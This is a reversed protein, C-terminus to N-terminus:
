PLAPRSSVQVSRAASEGASLAAMMTTIWLREVARAEEAMHQRARSSHRHVHGLLAVVKLLAVAVDPLGRGMERKRHAGETSQHGVRADSMPVPGDVQQPPGESRVFM